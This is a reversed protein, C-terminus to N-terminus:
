DVKRMNDYARQIADLFARSSITAATIADVEGGDKSVTINNVGPNLGLVSRKGTEDRFWPEMKTGLGPTEAHELIRYNNISGDPLFGVMVRIKGSFGINTFSEVATGVLEGNNYGPYFFVSDGDTGVSYADETPSNNFEPIVFLIAENKKALMAAAIPGKTVEYVAGLSASAVLTITFLAIVMNILTSEKKAM